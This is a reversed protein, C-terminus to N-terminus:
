RGQARGRLVYRPPGHGAASASGNPQLAVVPLLERGVWRPNWYYMKALLCRGRRVQDEIYSDAISAAGAGAAAWGPGGLAGLFAASSRRRQGQRRGNARTSTSSPATPTPGCSRRTPTLAEDPVGGLSLALAALMALGLRRTTSM